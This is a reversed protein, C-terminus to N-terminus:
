EHSLSLITVKVLPIFSKIGEDKEPELKAEEPNIDTVIGDEM